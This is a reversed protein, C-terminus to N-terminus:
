SEIKMMGAHPVVCLQRQRSHCTHTHPLITRSRNLYSGDRRAKITHVLECVRDIDVPGKDVVKIRPVSRIWGADIGRPAHEKLAILVPKVAACAIIMDRRRAEVRSFPLGRDHFQHVGITVTTM